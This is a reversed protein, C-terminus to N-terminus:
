PRRPAVVDRFQGAFVQLVERCEPASPLLGADLLARDIDADIREVSQMDAGSLFRIDSFEILEPFHTVLGWPALKQACIELWKRDASEEPIEDLMRRDAFRRQTEDDEAYRATAIEEVLGRLEVRWKARIAQREDKTLSRGEKSELLKMERSVGARYADTVSQVWTEDEGGFM